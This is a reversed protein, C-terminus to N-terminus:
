FGGGVRFQACTEFAMRLDDLPIPLPLQAEPKAVFNVAADALLDSSLESAHSDSCSAWVPNARQPGRNRSLPRPFV